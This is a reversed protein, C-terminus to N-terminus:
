IEVEFNFNWCHILVSKTMLPSSSFVLNWRAPIRIITGHKSQHHKWFTFLQHHEDFCHVTVITWACRQHSRGQVGCLGCGTLFDWVVVWSEINGYNLFVAPLYLPGLTCYNGFKYVIYLEIQSYSIGCNILLKVFYKLYVSFKRGM